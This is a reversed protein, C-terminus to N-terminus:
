ILGHSISLSRILSMLGFHHECLCAHYFVLRERNGQLINQQLVKNGVERTFEAVMELGNDEKWTVLAGQDILRQVTEPGKSCCEKLCKSIHALICVVVCGWLFRLCLVTRNRLSTHMIESLFWFLWCHHTLCVGSICLFWSTSVKGMPITSRRLLCGPGVRTRHM